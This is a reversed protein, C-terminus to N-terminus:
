FGIGGTFLGTLFSILPVLLKFGFFVFILLIVFGNQELFQIVRYQSAPLVAYLVKSGDLPPIPVLNFVALLVNAYVIVSLFISLNTMPMLRIFLGFATALILNAFPGALAVWLPGTRQNKLNYSNYPVPKAYAFLFHGGTILFLLIPMLITGWKDIHKLPNLTLRGAYRATPDGLQDAM